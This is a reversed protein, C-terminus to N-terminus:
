FKMFKSRFIILIVDNILWPSFSKKVDVSSCPTVFVSVPSREGIFQLPSDYLDPISQTLDSGVSIFYDNFYNAIAKSGSM